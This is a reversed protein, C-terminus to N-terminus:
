ALGVGLQDMLDAIAEQETAGTGIPDKTDGSCHREDIASWDFQRTPIPPYVFETAIWAPRPDM